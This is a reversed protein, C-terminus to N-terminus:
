KRDPVVNLKVGLSKMVTMITAFEPNGNISLSKYLSTRSMGTEKALRTMGKAKAIDGIAALLLATDNEAIVASLYGAIDEETELYESVDFESVKVKSM